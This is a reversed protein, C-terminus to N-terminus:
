FFVQAAHAARQRQAPEQLWAQLQQQLGAADHVLVAGGAACLPPFIDTFNHVHRGSVVPVAFAAAELPNHGGHAVLSGGIFAMDAVAYWLLLEGMSDGVIIATNNAFAGGSSRSVVPLGTDRCLRTVAAFREPHRPVLILLIDHAIGARLQTFVQLIQEDEGQHTSAAVWVPRKAGWQQRLLRGREVLEPPVVLDFKINGCVVLRTPDAGLQQFYVADQAARAAIRSVHALTQRVLGGLRAYGRMSRTSLRANALLLPVQRQACAAYLNAWIETELVVCLMPQVRQLFRSLASPLDYPLYSHRVRQGFLRQVSASGTPTTTTIWLPYQPYDRLLREVLPRAALTEGVSVAHLWLCPQSSAPVFGFRESVRQRYAPNARGRWWLRALFLPTLLYLVLTYLSRQM